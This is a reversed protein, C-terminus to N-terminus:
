CDLNTTCNAKLPCIKCDRKSFHVKVLEKGWQDTMETWSARDKGMPCIM